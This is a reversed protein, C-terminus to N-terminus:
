KFNKIMDAPRGIIAPEEIQIKTEDKGPYSFLNLVFKMANLRARKKDDSRVITWPNSDTDSISFMDEKADTYSSWQNLSAIDTPSIKWRKLPNLIRAMFRRLQEERSVSFWFKILTIGSKTIQEEFQAVSSAFREYEDDNCYGMVKEVGARNYWSRDFFVIEGATPFHKIYRQFYWQGQEETTPKELAVVRAGRPNLHETFRKITGGKGAADRGEFIIIVKKGGEKIENQWKILEEQLERKKREYESRKMKRKFPYDHGIVVKRESKRILESTKQDIYGKKIFYDHLVEEGQTGLSRIFETSEEEKM